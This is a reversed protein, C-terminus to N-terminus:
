KKPCPGGHHDAFCYYCFGCGCQTCVIYNCGGNKEIRVGCDPCAKTNKEIWEQSLREQEGKRTEAVVSFLSLLLVAVWLYRM